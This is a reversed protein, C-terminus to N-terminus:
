KGTQETYIWEAAQQCLQAVKGLSEHDFSKTYKWGDLGKYSRELTVSYFTEQKGQVM